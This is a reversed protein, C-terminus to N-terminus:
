VYDIMVQKARSFFWGGLSFVGFSLILLILINLLDPVQGLILIKQFASFFYAFPNIIIIFRLADPIMGPTYAIPSAIMLMILIISILFQMDRIVVNVLSLFWNVGILFLLLLFWIIPLLLVTWSLLHTFITAIIISTFGAMTTVQGMLTAKAPALDIPFVTNSLVAKNTVISSVGLTMTEAVMLYPTLGSFIYLVYEVPTLETPRVQFIFLYIVAYIGLILLPSLFSWGVGFFSGAYRARLENWTVRLLINRHSILYRVSNNNM